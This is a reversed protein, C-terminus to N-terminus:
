KGVAIVYHQTRFYIAEKSLAPTAMVIDEMKNRGLLKYKPGAQVIGVIILSVILGCGLALNVNKLEIRKSM